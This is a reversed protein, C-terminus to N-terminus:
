SAAPQRVVVWVSGVLLFGLAVQAVLGSGPVHVEKLIQFRDLEDGSYSIFRADLTSGDIDIVMSGELEFSTVMVPHDLAGGDAHANEGVGNVVYVTGGHAVPDLPSKLYPGDGSPDGDGGHLINAPSLTSAVGYHGDILMSREYTHSHGTLVLDVGGAEFVPNYLTRVNTMHGDTDSDRGGRSYPPFHLFAIIWDQSTAALDAVVWNYVPSGVSCDTKYTNLSVFHINAYDFSYYTETGSSVGGAEGLTPLTFADYYPGTETIPSSSDPPTGDYYDHNGPAPWLVTNRLVGPYNNFVANTYEADTGTNYANDGLMLWVDALQNGAFNLYEDRVQASKVSNRGSDGIVWIRTAHSTGVEPSTVFYHAPDAGALAVSTTGVSYFYQTFPQLSQVEVEHETVLGPTSITTSLNDPAPGYRLTSEAAVDTRWRVIMSMPTGQQLYPGRVLALAQVAPAQLVLFALLVLGGVPKVNVARRPPKIAKATEIIPSQVPSGDCPFEDM